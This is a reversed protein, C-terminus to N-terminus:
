RHWIEYVNVNPITKMILQLISSDIDALRVDTSPSREDPGGKTKRENISAPAEPLVMVVLGVTLSFFVEINLEM